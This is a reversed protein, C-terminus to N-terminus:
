GQRIIRKEPISTCMSYSVGHAQLIAEIVKTIEAPISEPVPKNFDTIEIDVIIKVPKFPM